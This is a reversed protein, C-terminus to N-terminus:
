EHSFELISRLGIRRVGGVRTYTVGIRRLFLGVDSGAAIFIYLTCRYVLRSSPVLFDTHTVNYHATM